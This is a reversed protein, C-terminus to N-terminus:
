EKWKEIGFDGITQIDSILAGLELMMEDTYKTPEAVVSYLATNGIGGIGGGGEGINIPSNSAKSSYIKLIFAKRYSSALIALGGLMGMFGIYFMFGSSRSMSLIWIGLMTLLGGGIIYGISFKGGYFTSIGSVADLPVEDVIRSGNGYGHFLVRRDTVTLDGACKPFKLQSCFYTRVVTEDDSLIIGNLNKRETEMRPAYKNKLANGCNSCIIFNGKADKLKIFKTISFYLVAGAIGIAIFFINEIIAATINNDNTSQPTSNEKYAGAGRDVADASANVRTFFLLPFVVVVILVFCIARKPLVKKM